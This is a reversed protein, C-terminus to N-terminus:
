VKMSKPTYSRLSIIKKRSDQHLVGQVTITKRLWQHIDGPREGPRVVYKGEDDTLIAYGIVNGDADWQDAILIGTVTIHVVPKMISKDSTAM